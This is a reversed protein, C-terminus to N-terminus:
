WGDAQIEKESKKPMVEELHSHSHPCCAASSSVLSWMRRPNYPPLNRFEQLSGFSQLAPDCSCRAARLTLTKPM